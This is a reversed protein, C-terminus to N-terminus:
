TVRFNLLEWLFKPTTSCTLPKIYKIKFLIKFFAQAKSEDIEEIMSHLIFSHTEPTSQHMKNWRETSTCDRSRECAKKEETSVM